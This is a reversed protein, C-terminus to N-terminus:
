MSQEGSEYNSFGCWGFAAECDKAILGFRTVGFDLRTDIKTMEDFRVQLRGDYQQVIITHWVDFDFSKPLSAVSKAGDVLEITKAAPDLLITAKGQQGELAIGYRGFGDNKLLKVNFEAVFNAQMSCKCCIEGHKGVLRDEGRIQWDGSIVQWNSGIDARVFSEFYAPPEPNPQSSWIPGDCRMDGSDDFYLKDLCLRRATGGSKRCHYVHWLSKLNPGRVAWNCGTAVWEGSLQKILTGSKQPKLDAISKGKAVRVQYSDKLWDNGCYTLYYIGDRKWLDPGETWFNGNNEASFRCLPLTRNDGDGKVPSSATRFQIGVDEWGAYFLYLQGDDDLLPVADLTNVDILDNNVCVFPGTPKDAEFVKHKQDIGCVYLYFKGNYFFPGPSWGHGDAFVPDNDICLGKYKWNVLDESEWCRMGPDEKVKTAYLYYKGMWRLVGPDAIGAGMIGNDIPLPNKYAGASVCLAMVGILLFMAERLM